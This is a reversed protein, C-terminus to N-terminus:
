TEPAFRVSAGDPVDRLQRALDSLYRRRELTPVAKLSVGKASEEFVFPPYVSLLQGPELRGGEAQFQNLPGLQLFQDPDARAAEDFEQLRLNTSALAGTEADLKWVVDRRIVFQDGLADEAFPVDDPSVVPFLRHIAEEGFWAARLSHWEPLRCAGRVHLGGRYAVYGNVVKLLEGYARPIRELMEFDDVSPGTYMRHRGLTRGPAAPAAGLPRDITGRTALLATAARADRCQSEDDYRKPTSLSEKTM